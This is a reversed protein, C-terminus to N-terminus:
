LWITTVQRLSKEKDRRYSHFQHNCITCVNHQEEINIKQIGLSILQQKNCGPVDFFLTNNKEIVTQEEPALHKIHELFDAQIEYCCSKASPGFTAVIDGPSAGYAQQMTQLVNKTIGNVTGSWGAHVIAAIHNKTDFLAIPLCDATLVAIGVHKQHTILFDGEQEFLSVKKSYDNIITGNTSHTQKLAIFHKLALDKAVNSCFTKFMPSQYHVSCNKANGFFLSYNKKNKIM